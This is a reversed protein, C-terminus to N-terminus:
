VPVEMLLDLVGPLVLCLTLCAAFTLGGTLYSRRRRREERTMHKM